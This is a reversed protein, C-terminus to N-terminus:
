RHTCSYSSIRDNWKEGMQYIPKYDNMIASERCACVTLERACALSTSARRIYGECNSDAYFTCRGKITISSIADNYKFMLNQCHSPVPNVELCWGKFHWHECVRIWPSKNQNASSAVDAPAAVDTPAAAAAAAALVFLALRHHM